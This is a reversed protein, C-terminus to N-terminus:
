VSEDIAHLLIHEDSVANIFHVSTDAAGNKHIALLPIDNEM